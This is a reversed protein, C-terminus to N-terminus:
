GEPLIGAHEQTVQLSKMKGAYFLSERLIKNNKVWLM